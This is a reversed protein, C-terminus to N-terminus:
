ILEAETIMLIKYEYAIKCVERGYKKHLAIKEDTQRYWAMTECFGEGEKKALKLLDKKFAKVLRSLRHVDLEGTAIIVIQDTANKDAFGEGVYKTKIGILIKM